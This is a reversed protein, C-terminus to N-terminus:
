RSAVPSMQLYLQDITERRRSEIRSRRPKLTTTLEGSELSAPEDLVAFARIREHQSLGQGLNDLELKILDHVATAPQAEVAARNVAILAVLYPRDNGIVFIQDIYRSQRYHDEIGAPSIRRGTSTKIVDTARGTLFLYGDPDLQGTDGTRYYGDATFRAVNPDDLYGSFVSPGKVLVEGEDSIRVVNPALPRGVSGLRRHAPTNAAVPVANETVGYAELIPMGIADFFELVWIPAAASGSILLQINGGMARRIRKLVLSDLVFHRAQLSLSPRTGNRLHRARERGASVAKEFLRRQLPSRAALQEQIGQCVKEYVRPVATLV